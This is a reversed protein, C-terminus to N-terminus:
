EVKIKPINKGFKVYIYNPFKPNKLRKQITNYKVGTLESAEKLSNYIIGDISIIAYNSQIKRNKAAQSLKAKHGETLKRGKQSEKIHKVHEESKKIGKTSKSIKEKTEQSHQFGLTSGAILLINYEPKLNDIWFQERTLLDTKISDTIELTEIVEFEFVERGYKNYANQLHKNIHKNHKLAYFHELRRRDTHITSGVYMKGNITNTITYIGAIM